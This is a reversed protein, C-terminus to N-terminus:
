QIAGDSDKSEPTADGGESNSSAVLTLLHM